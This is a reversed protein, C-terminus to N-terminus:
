AAREGLHKVIFADIEATLKASQRTGKLVAYLHTETIDEKECWGKATM